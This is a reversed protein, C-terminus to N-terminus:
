CVAPSCPHIPRDARPPFICSNKVFARMGTSGANSAGLRRSVIQGTLDIFHEADETTSAADVVITNTGLRLIPSAIAPLDVVFLSSDDADQQVFQSSVVHGNITVQLPGDFRVALQGLSAFDEVDFAWEAHQSQRVHLPVEHVMRTTKVANASQQLPIQTAIPGTITAVGGGAVNRTDQLLVGVEVRWLATMVILFVCPPVLVRLADHSPRM